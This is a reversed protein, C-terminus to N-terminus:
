VSLGRYRDEQILLNRSLRASAVVAQRVSVLTMVYKGVSLPKVSALSLFNIPKEAM